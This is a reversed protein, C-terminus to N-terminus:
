MYFEGQVCNENNTPCYKFNIPVDTVKPWMVFDSVTFMLDIALRETRHFKYHINLMPSLYQDSLIQCPYLMLDPLIEVSVPIIM